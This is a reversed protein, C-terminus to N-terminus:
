FVAEVLELAQDLNLRPDCLTTYNRHLAAEDPVAGGVCETIGAAGAELHLGGPHLRAKELLRTFDNTEAVVDPLYRTKRGDGLRVTNGHMPDSLWVVPHGARKVARTLPPLAEAIRARGMRVILTLRGPTRDPDLAACLAVVDDPSTDPGIKCAVPNVVSALLRVHAHDVQRTREGVWPFHTSGLFREGTDPDCRVLAGEYDIVLADHSSWPGLAPHDGRAREADLVGMATRGLRYARLMRVPNHRRAAPHAKESNVLHGRFAPLTVGDVIETPQSRPKAFQGALRGVRVVEQGVRSSFADAVRNMAAIKDTIRSPTCDAFAEACDGIQLLRASEASVAALATRALRVGALDVLAPATTLRQLVRQHVPHSRWDPQQAAPLGAWEGPTEPCPGTVNLPSHM